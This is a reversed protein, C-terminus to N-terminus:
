DASRAARVQQGQVDPKQRDCRRAEKQAEILAPIIGTKEESATVKFGGFNNQQKEKVMQGVGIM